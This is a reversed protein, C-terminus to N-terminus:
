SGEQLKTQLEEKIEAAAEREQRDVVGAVRDLRRIATRIRLGRRDPDRESIRKRAEHIIADLEDTEVNSIGSLSM